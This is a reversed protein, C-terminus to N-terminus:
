IGEEEQPAAMLSPQQNQIPAPEPELEPLDSLSAKMESTIIGAPVKGSQAAKKMEELKEEEFTVGMVKEEAEDDEEQGRYFVPDIDLREALALFMYALPEILLLMLDPNFMGKQFETKLVLQVLDMIPTGDSLVEMAPVYVEPDTITTWLYLSASDLETFEPAQEFPAPNDPDNTLSQGAIPRGLNSRFEQFEEENM